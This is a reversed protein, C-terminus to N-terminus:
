ESATSTTSSAASGATTAAGPKGGVTSATTPTATVANPPAYGSRYVVGLKKMTESLWNNWTETESETLLKSRIQEKVSDYALQQSPAIDMVQILSYGSPTKVPQSIEGKKLQFVVQEFAPATQGKVIEGLDGERGKSAPDDSYKEVMTVFDARNMIESRLKSAEAKAADWDSQTPTETMMKGSADLFPSILIHRVQRTEDLVYESKHQQYYAQVESEKISATSSVAEKMRVLWLNQEVAQTLQEVSMGLKAIAENFKAEDGLFMAKIQSVGADVDGKTVAVNFESGQQYLVQLTVLYETCRQRFLKYADGQKSKDPAKGASEYAALLDNLEKETVVKTGVQAVAGEPLNGGCGYLSAFMTISLLLLLCVAIRRVV